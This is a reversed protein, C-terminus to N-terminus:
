ARFGDHPLERAQWSGGKLIVRWVSGERVQCGRQDKPPLQVTDRTLFRLLNELPAAHSCLAIVQSDSRQLIARVLRLTTDQPKEGPQGDILDDDIEADLNLAAMLPEVTMRCRLLPSTVIRQLNAGRLLPVLAAAQALGQEVLRPGPPRHYAGPQAYDPLAHRILYLQM